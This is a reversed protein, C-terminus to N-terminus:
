RLRGSAQLSSTILDDNRKDLQQLDPSGDIIAFQIQLAKDHYLVPDITALGFSISSLYAPHFKGFYVPQGDVTVAFAKDSSYDTIVAKIDKKLKFTTTSKEYFAIDQDAVLPTNALVANSITLIAPTTAPNVNVTFSKLMYIEVKAGKQDCEKECSSLLIIALCYIFIKRMVVNLNLCEFNPSRQL